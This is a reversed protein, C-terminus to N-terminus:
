IKGKDKQRLLAFMSMAKFTSGILYVTNPVAPTRAWINAYGFADTWLIRDGSVLAVAASPIKGQLLIEEIEKELDQVPFVPDATQAPLFIFLFFIFFIGMGTCIKHKRATIGYKSMGQAAFPDGRERLKQIIEKVDL